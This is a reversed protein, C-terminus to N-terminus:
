GSSNSIGSLGRCPARHALRRLLGLRSLPNVCWPTIYSGLAGTIHLSPYHFSFGLSFSPLHLPSSRGPLGLMRRDRGLHLCSTGPLGMAPSRAASPRLKERDCIVLIAIGCCPIRWCCDTIAYTLLYFQLYSLQSFLM